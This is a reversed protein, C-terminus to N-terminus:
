RRRSRRVSRRPPSPATIVGRVLWAAKRPCARAGRRPARATGVLDTGRSHLASGPGRGAARPPRVRGQLGRPAPRPGPLRGRRTRRASAPRRRSQGEPRGPRGLWTGPQRVGHAPRAIHTRRPVLIRSVLHGPEEGVRGLLQEERLVLRATVNLEVTCTQRLNSGAASILPQPLWRLIAHETVSLRVDYTAPATTPGRLALTAAATTRRLM